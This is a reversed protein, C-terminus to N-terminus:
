PHSTTCLMTCALYSPCFSQMAWCPGGMTWRLAVCCRRYWWSVAAQFLWCFYDTIWATVIFAHFFIM